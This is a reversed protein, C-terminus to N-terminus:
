RGSQTRVNWGSGPAPRPSPRREPTKKIIIQVARSM